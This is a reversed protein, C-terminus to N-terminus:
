ACVIIGGSSIAKSSADGCCCKTGIVVLGLILLLIAITGGSVSIAIITNIGIDSSINETHVSTCQHYSM